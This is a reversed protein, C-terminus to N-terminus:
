DWFPKAQVFSKWDKMLTADIEAARRRHWGLVGGAAFALPVPHRRGAGAKEDGTVGVLSALMTEAVAVDNMRGLDEQLRTLKKVFKKKQEGDFIDSFFDLAYRLASSRSGCRM